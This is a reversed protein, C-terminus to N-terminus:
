LDQRQHGANPHSGNQHRHANTELNQWVDSDSGYGERRSSYRRTHLFETQGRWSIRPIRRLLYTSPPSEALHDLVIAYWLRLQPCLQFRVVRLYHMIGM